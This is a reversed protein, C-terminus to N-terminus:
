KSGRKGKAAVEPTIIKRVHKDLYAVAAAIDDETLLADVALKFTEIPARTPDVLCGDSLRVPRTTDAPPLDAALEPQTLVPEVVTPRIPVVNSPTLGHCPTVAAKAAEYMKFEVVEDVTLCGRDNPRHRDCGEALSEERDYDFVREVLTYTKGGVTETRVTVRGAELRRRKAEALAEVSQPCNEDYEREAKHIARTIAARKQTEDMAADRHRQQRARETARVQGARAPVQMDLYRKATSYSIQTYTEVFAKFDPVSAKAEVLKATLQRRSIEAREKANAELKEDRGIGEYIADIHKGAAVPDFTEAQTPSKSKTNTM